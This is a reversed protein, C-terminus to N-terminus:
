LRHSWSSDSVVPHSFSESWEMCIIDEYNIWTTALTLVGNRELALYYEWYTSLLNQKGMWRDISRQTAEISLDIQKFGKFMNRNSKAKSCIRMARPENHGCCKQHSWGQKKGLWQGEIVRGSKSIHDVDKWNLPNTLNKELEQNRDM